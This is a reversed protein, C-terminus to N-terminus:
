RKLEHQAIAALRDRLSAHMMQWELAKSWVSPKMQYRHLIDLAEALAPGYGLEAVKRDCDLELKRSYASTVGVILPISVTLLLLAIPVAQALPLSGGHYQFQLIFALVVTPIVVTAARRRIRDDGKEKEFVLRRAVVAVLQDRSLLEVLCMPILLRDFPECGVQPDMDPGLFRHQCPVGVIESARSVEPVLPDDAPLRVLQGERLGSVRTEAVFYSLLAASSFPWFRVGYRLLLEGAGFFALPLAVPLARFVPLNSGPTAGIFRPHKQVFSRSWILQRYSGAICGVSCSIFIGSVAAPMFYRMDDEKPMGLLWVLVPWILCLSLLLAQGIVKVPVSRNYAAQVEAESPPMGDDNLWVEPRRYWKFLCYAGGFAALGFLVTLADFTM